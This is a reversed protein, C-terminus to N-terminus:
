QKPKRGKRKPKTAISPEVIPDKVEIETTPMKAFVRAGKTQLLKEALEDTINSNNVFVNSCPELQIGNYKDLLRYPCNNTTEGIKIKYKKHYDAILNNCSACLNDVNFKVSYDKLFLKLYRIGDPTVGGIIQETTMNEWQLM